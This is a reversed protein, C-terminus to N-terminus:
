FAVSSVPPLRVRLCSYQALNLKWRRMLNTILQLTNVMSSDDLKFGPGLKVSIDVPLRFKDGPLVVAGNASM